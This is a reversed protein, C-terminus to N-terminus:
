QADWPARDTMRISKALYAWMAGGNTYLQERFEPVREEATRLTNYSPGAPYPTSLKRDIWAVADDIRQEENVTNETARSLVLTVFGTAYLDSRVVRRECCDRGSGSWGTWPGLEVLAWGGDQRQASLLRAALQEAEVEELVDGDTESNCWLVAAKAHLSIDPNQSAEALTTYLLDLNQDPSLEPYLSAAVCALSAGWIDSDSAEWPILNAFIWKWRGAKDGSKIQENWLNEFALRTPQSAERQEYADQMARIFANLVAESGRSDPALLFQKAREASGNSLAAMDELKEHTYWPTNDSWTRIRADINELLENYAPDSGPLLPEVLAYPLSTHCSVCAEGEGAILASPNKAWVQAGYRAYEAVLLDITQPQNIGPEPDQSQVATSIVLPSVFLMKLWSIRAVVSSSSM